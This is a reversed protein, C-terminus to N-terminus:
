AELIGICEKVAALVEKDYERLKEICMIICNCYGWELENYQRKSWDRCQNLGIVQWARTHTNDYAADIVKFANDFRKDKMPEWIRHRFTEAFNHCNFTYWMTEDVRKFRRKIEEFDADQLKEDWYKFKQIYEDWLKQDFNNEMVKEIRKFADLLNYKPESKGTIVFIYDIEDYTPTNAPKKQAGLPEAMILSDNEYGILVRFRGNSGDKMRAFVLKGSDISNKIIASFNDTIKNYDYGTLKMLFDVTDDCNWYSDYDGTEERKNRDFKERQSNGGSMTGFLFYYDEQIKGNSHSCNGCGSCGKGERAPCEYEDVGKIDKLYMYVSAFCNTFVLDAFGSFPINFELQNKM